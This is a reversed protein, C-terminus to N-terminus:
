SGLFTDEAAYDFPDYGYDSFTTFTKKWDSTAVTEMMWRCVDRVDDAYKGPTWGRERARGSDAVFPRPVSWPTEGVHSGAPPAGAFPVIPVPLSTSAEIAGAIDRVTPAPWDTANLTRTKPDRLCLEILRALGTASSTQFVSGADFAVPIERRRDLARKLFWWERPHRAHSGYIAGPRLITVPIRADLLANEMAMKRSSYTEPGAAVTSQTEDVPGAFDPFGLDKATELSRGDGDAYVSITSVAVLSAFHGSCALLAATDVDDFLMPHVVADVAQGVDDFIESLSRQRAEILGLGRKFVHEPPRRGSQSAAVVRWGHDLLAEAVASGIQGTGGFVLATKM